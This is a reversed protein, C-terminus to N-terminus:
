INVLYDFVSVFFGAPMKHSLISSPVELLLALQADDRMPEESVNLAVTELYLFSQKATVELTISSHLTLFATPSTPSM